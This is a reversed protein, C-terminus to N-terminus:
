TFFRVSSNIKLSFYIKIRKFQKSGLNKEFVEMADFYDDINVVKSTSISAHFFYTM